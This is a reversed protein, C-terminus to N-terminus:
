HALRIMPGDWELRLDTRALTKGKLSETVVSIAVPAREIAAKENSDYSWFLKGGQTVTERGFDLIEATSEKQALFYGADATWRYRVKMGPPQESVPTLGVGLTSSMTVSYAPPEVIVRMATPPTACAALLFVLGIRM